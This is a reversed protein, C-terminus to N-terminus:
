ITIFWLSNGATNTRRAPKEETQNEGVAEAEGVAIYYGLTYFLTYFRLIQM